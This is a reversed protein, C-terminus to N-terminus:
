QSGIEWNIKRALENAEARGLSQATLIDTGFTLYFKKYSEADSLGKSRQKGAWWAISERLGAQMEQRLRHQKMAGNIAAQPAGARILGEVAQQPTQDIRAVEGRMRALTAADLEFLDGDVFEPGARELVEPKFGCYPCKTHFREYPRTCQPCPRLMVVDEAKRSARKDRGALSWHRPADPLGHRLVNGVHDIIIAEDKGEMPRLARGFQQCYLGYSQTPRAFMVVEIAPLDFGEGFLDVNCLVRIEGNRFQRIIRSRVTAETKASAVEARIGAANFQNAIQGAVSVETAFVVGLKGNALRQYHEVVDGVIHSEAVAQRLKPQSYDGTTASVDVNTLDIDSQPCYIRYDTLFGRNILERMSPGIVMSDMLGDAHRGLGKGDARLPTATVGLGHAHPFMQAATGWKNDALVHHAEDQVWLTVQNAWHSLQSSRKVLTDVSAVAIPANPQMFSTGLEAFQEQVCSRITKSSGVIRHPTGFRGLSLAIQSVLEHRHAIACAAGRHDHLISGFLVTKGAGTPMVAMVNRDTQWNRYIDDKVSQQYDRLQIM